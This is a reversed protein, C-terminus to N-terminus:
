EGREEKARREARRLEAEAIELRWEWFPRLLADAEQALLGRASHVADIFQEPVEGSACYYSEPKPDALELVLSRRQAADLRQAFQVVREAIIRWPATDVKYFGGIRALRYARAEENVKLASIRRATESPVLFGNPDVNHLCQEM